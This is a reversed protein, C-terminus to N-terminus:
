INENGNESNSNSNQEENKKNRFCSSIFPQIQDVNLLKIYNTNNKMTTQM